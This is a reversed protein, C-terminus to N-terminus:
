PFSKIKVHDMLIESTSSTISLCFSLRYSSVLLDYKFEFILKTQTLLLHEDSPCVSRPFVDAERELLIQIVSVVVYSRLYEYITQKGEKRFIFLYGKFCIYVTITLM